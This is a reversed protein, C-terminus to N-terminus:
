PTFGTSSGVDEVTLWAKDDASAIIQWNRSSGSAESVRLKYVTTGAAPSVYHVINFTFRDQNDVILGYRDQQLQVDAGTTLKVVASGGATTSGGARLRGVIRYLRGTLATFSVALGDVDVDTTGSVVQNNEKKMMAVVGLASNLRRDDVYAKSTLHGASAVATPSTNALSPTSIFDISADKHIVESDVFNRVDGFNQNVESALAKNGEVLTNTVILNAM